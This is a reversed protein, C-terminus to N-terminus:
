AKARGRTTDQIKEGLFAGFLSIMGGLLGGIVYAPMTLQFGGGLHEPGAPTKDVLWWVTPVVAVLAGVAPELFTKGPSIFGVIIGGLFWLGLSIMLASFGQPDYVEILAPLAVLVVAQLALYVVFSLVAWKIDFGEQQHRRRAEEEASYDAALEELKAGCSVCREASPANKFGCVHCIVQDKSSAM